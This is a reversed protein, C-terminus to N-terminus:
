SRTTSTARDLEKPKPPVLPETTNRRMQDAGTHLGANRRREYPDVALTGSRNIRTVAPQRETVPEKLAHPEPLASDKKQVVM